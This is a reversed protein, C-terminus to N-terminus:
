CFCRCSLLRKNPKRMKLYEKIISQYEDNPVIKKELINLQNELEKLIEYAEDTKLTTPQYVPIENQNAVVKVPPPTLIQKRGVPKDPQTFVGVIEHRSEILANLTGVAIDPTGMFVIRM